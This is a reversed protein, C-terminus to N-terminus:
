HFIIKKDGIIVGNPDLLKNKVEESSLENGSGAFTATTGANVGPGAPQQGLNPSAQSNLPMGKRRQVIGQFVVQGEIQELDRRLKRIAPVGKIGLLVLSYGIQMLLLALCVILLQHWVVAFVTLAMLLAGSTIMVQEYRSLHKYFQRALSFFIKLRAYRDQVKVIAGGCWKAWSDSLTRFAKAGREESETVDSARSIFEQKGAKNKNILNPTNVGKNLASAGNNGGQLSSLKVERLKFSVNGKQERVSSQRFHSAGAAVAVNQEATGKKQAKKIQAEKRLKERLSKLSLVVYTKKM